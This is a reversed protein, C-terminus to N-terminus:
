LKRAVAKYSVSRGEGVQRYWGGDCYYFSVGEEILKMCRDPRSAYSAGIVYPKHAKEGERGPPSPPTLPVEKVVVKEVVVPVEREVIWVGGGLGHHRGTGREWSFLNPSPYTIRAGTTPRTQAALPSALAAMALM